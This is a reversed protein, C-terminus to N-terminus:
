RYNNQLVTLKEQSLVELKTEYSGLYDELM